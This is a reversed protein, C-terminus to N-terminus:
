QELRAVIQETFEPDTQAITLIEFYRTEDIGETQEVVEAMAIQAEELLLQQAEPDTEDALQMAYQADIESVGQYATVFADLETSSVDQATPMAPADMMPAESATQALLAAPATGAIIAAIAMASIRTGLKM